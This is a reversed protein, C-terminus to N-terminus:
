EFVLVLGGFIVVVGMSTLGYLFFNNLAPFVDLITLVCSIFCAISGIVLLTLGIKQKQAARDKKWSSIIGKVEDENIGQAHLERLIEEETAGKAIMMQIVDMRSTSVVGM